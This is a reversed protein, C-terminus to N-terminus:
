RGKEMSGNLTDLWSDQWGIVKIDEIVRSVAGQSVILRAAIEAQRSIGAMWAKIVQERINTMSNFVLRNMYPKIDPLEVGIMVLGRAIRSLAQGMRTGLEIVPLDEIERNFKNRAVPSRLAVAINAISDIYDLDVKPVEVVSDIIDAMARAMKGRIVELSGDNRRARYVAEDRNVPSNWRLDIFRSGLSYELARNSEILPTTGIIWDFHTVQPLHGQESGYDCVLEGDYVSRLLGFIERQADANKTLMSGFEKTIVLKGDIRQLLTLQKEGEKKNVWGRRIAGATITEMTTAYPEYGLTRLLETKGTGSAGIIRLWLMESWKLKHSVATAIVLEVAELDDVEFNTTLLEEFREVEEIM